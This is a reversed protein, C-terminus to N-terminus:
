RNGHAPLVMIMRPCVSAYSWLVRRLVLFVPAKVWEARGANKKRSEAQCQNEVDSDLLHGAVSGSSVKPSIM